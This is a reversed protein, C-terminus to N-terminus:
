SKWTKENLFITTNSFGATAVRKGRLDRPERISRDKRIFISRHRFVRLPFVPLLSYDRFGENAYALIFPHLGIETVERSQSGSFVDSNMDGIAAVEFKTDYGEVDVRGDVLAQVRDLKYGAVKVTPKKKSSSTDTPPEALLESAGPVTLAGAVGAATAAVKLFRRRSSSLSEAVSKEDDKAM